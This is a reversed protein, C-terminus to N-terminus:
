VNVKSLRIRYYAENLADVIQLIYDRNKSVIANKEGEATSIRVAYRERVFFFAILGVAIIAGGVWLAMANATVYEGNVWTGPMMDYTILQLGGILMALVGVSILIIGPIREPVLTLLGHRIIGNLKYSRKKVQFETDTVTIDHGDTYIVNQPVM